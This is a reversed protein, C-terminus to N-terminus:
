PICRSGDFVRCPSQAQAMKWSKITPKAGTRIEVTLDILSNLPIKDMHTAAKADAAVEIMAGETTVVKLVKNKNDVEIVTGFYTKEEAQPSPVWWLLVGIAVVLSVLFQVM